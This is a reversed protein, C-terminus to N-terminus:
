GENNDQWKVTDHTAQNCHSKAEDLTNFPGVESKFEGPSGAAQYLIYFFIGEKDEAREPDDEYDGTGYALNQSVIKIECPVTGSYLWSGRLALIRKLESASLFHVVRRIIPSLSPIPKELDLAM